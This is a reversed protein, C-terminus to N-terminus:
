SYVVILSSIWGKLQPIVEEIEIEFDEDDFYGETEIKYHWERAETIVCYPIGELAEVADIFRKAFGDRNKRSSDYEEIDELLRVLITKNSM